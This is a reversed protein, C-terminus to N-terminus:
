PASGPPGPVAPVPTAAATEVTCGAWRQWWPQQWWPWQPGPQQISMSSGPSTCMQRGHWQWQGGGGGGGGGVEGGGVWGGGGVWLGGGVCRGVGVGVGVGVVGLGLGVRGLGGAGCEGVGAGEWWATAGDGGGLRRAGADGFGVGDFCGRGVWEAWTRKTGPASSGGASRFRGDSVEVSVNTRTSV